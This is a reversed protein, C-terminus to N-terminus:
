YIIASLLSSDWKVSVAVKCSLYEQEGQAATSVAESLNISLGLAVRKTCALALVDVQVQKVGFERQLIQWRGSEKISDATSM